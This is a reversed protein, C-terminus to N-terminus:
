KKKKLAEKIAQQVLPKMINYGKENPHLGDNAMDEKLFGKDDAMPTFYDLYVAGNEAAYAKIWKNLTLIQDPPRTGTRVIQKGNKDKNYDSVPLVSAMVVKINHARALEAMSALNGEIAEVTTPGTNASLDNTGALIVVVKPKLDTVDPRFRVLMQPTTQGSIGRNIYPQGPFYEALKWIDTISDGMFVVRDEDRAPPALKADADHYRGISPWDKIRSEIRDARAKEAACDCGAAPVPTPPPPPPTQASAFIPLTLLTLALALILKV